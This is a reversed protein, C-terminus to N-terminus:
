ENVALPNQIFLSSHFRKASSYHIIKPQNAECIKVKINNCNQGVLVFRFWGSPHNKTKADSYPGSPSMMGLMWISVQQAYRLRLSCLVVSHQKLHLSVAWICLMPLCPAIRASHRLRRLAVIRRHLSTRMVPVPEAVRGDLRM